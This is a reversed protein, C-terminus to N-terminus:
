ATACAAACWSRSSKPLTSSGNLLGASRENFQKGCDRCRFRHYGPRHVGAAGNGGGLRLVRLGDLTEVRGFGFGVLPAEGPLGSLQCSDQCFGTALLCGVLAIDGHLIM